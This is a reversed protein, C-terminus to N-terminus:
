GVQVIGQAKQLLEFWKAEKAELKGLESVYDEM